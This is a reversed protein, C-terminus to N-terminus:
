VSIQFTKNQRFLTYNDSDNITPRAYDLFRTVTRTITAKAITAITATTTTAKATPIATTISAAKAPPTNM